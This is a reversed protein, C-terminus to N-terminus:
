GIGPVPVGAVGATGLVLEETLLVLRELLLRLEELLLARNEDTDELLELRKLLLEIEELLLVLVDALETIELSENELWTQVPGAHLASPHLPTSPGRPEFQQASPNSLSRLPTQSASSGDQM